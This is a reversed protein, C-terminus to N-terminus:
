KVSLAQAILNRRPRAQNLNTRAPSGTHWTSLWAKTCLATLIITQM